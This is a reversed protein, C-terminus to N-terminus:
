RTVAFSAPSKSGLISTSGSSTPRGTAAYGNSFIQQGLAIVRESARTATTSESTATSARAVIQHSTTTGRHTTGSSRPVQSRMSWTAINAASATVATSPTTLRRM